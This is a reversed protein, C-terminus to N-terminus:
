VLGGDFVFGWTEWITVPFTFGMLIWFWLQTLGFVRAFDFSFLLKLGCFVSFHGVANRLVAFYALICLVWFPFGLFLSIWLVLEWVAFILGLGSTLTEVIYWFPFRVDSVWLM